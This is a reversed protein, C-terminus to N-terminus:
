AASPEGNDAAAGAGKPAAEVKQFVRQQGYDKFTERTGTAEWGPLTRMIQGLSAAWANNYADLDRGLAEVWILPLCTKDKQKEELWAEVKGTLMDDATDITRSSQLTRATTRAAEDSLWLPLRGVSQAKRMAKYLHVAEAWLQGIEARLREIDINDEVKCAIPLFRRGGTSDKLYASDNTTGLCIYGRPFLRARRAYALRAKDTHRSLFAKTKRVDAKAMGTLEAMEAIWVGQMQEVTGKEDDMSADLEGFWHVALTEIFTSKRKGQLGELIVSEDIKTGPEFARAVAGTMMLKAVEIHYADNPAGLYDIFLGAVRPKQDWALKNLYDRVPHFANSKATLNIAATMDRDSIRLDYGGDEESSELLARLANDHGDAWLDGNIPDRVTWDTGDLQVVADSKRGPTARLVAEGTFDNFAMVGVTRPDNTLILHINPLSSIIRGKDTLVLRNMWEDGGDRKPKKARAPPAPEKELPEDVGLDRWDLPKGRFLKYIPAETPRCRPVRIMAAPDRVARPLVFRSSLGHSVCSIVEGWMQIGTTQTSAAAPHYAPSLPVAVIFAPLPEHHIAIMAGDATARNEDVIEVTASTDLWGLADGLYYAVSTANIERGGYNALYNKDLWKLVHDRPLMTETRGNESTSVLVATWNKEEIRSSVEDLNVGEIEVVAVGIETVATKRRQAGALVAPVFAMGPVRDADIESEAKLYETFGDWTLTQPVWTPNKASPSKSTSFKILAIGCGNEKVIADM